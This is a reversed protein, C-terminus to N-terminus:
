VILFEDPDAPPATMATVTFHGRGAVVSYATIEAAQKALAGTRWFVIRKKFHNALGLAVDNSEFETTTPAFAADDVHGSVMLAGSKQIQQAAITDGWVKDHIDQKDQATVGSGSVVVQTLSSRELFVSVTFDGLTPVFMPLAGDEPYVNGKITLEHDAEHPRIRWGLDNRLFFYAGLELGGPLPDGGTTRFAPAYKGNTGVLLFEKWDSYFDVEADLSTVGFNVSILRAVGDFTAKPM